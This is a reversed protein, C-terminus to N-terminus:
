RTSPWTYRSRANGKAGAPESDSFEWREAPSQRFVPMPRVIARLDDQPSFASDGAPVDFAPASRSWAPMSVEFENENRGGTAAVAAQESPPARQGDPTPVAAYARHRALEAETWPQPRCQCGEVLKKRYRFATPYSAYARGSLDLMGDVDSSGANPTYFLRAGACSAACKESDRAFGAESAASSIPFYFGDCMRVCFTRYTTAGARPIPTDYQSPKLLGDFLFPAPESRAYGSSPRSPPPSDPGFLFDLFGQANAPDSAPVLLMLLLALRARLTM